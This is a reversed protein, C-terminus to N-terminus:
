NSRYERMVLMSGLILLGVLIFGVGLLQLFSPWYQSLVDGSYTMTNLLFLYGILEIAFGSGILLGAISSAKM